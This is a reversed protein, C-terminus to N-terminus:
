FQFYIFPTRDLPWFIAFLTLLFVCAAAAAPIPLKALHQELDGIRMSIVHLSWFAAMLFLVFGVNAPGADFLGGRFDFMVFKELAVVMKSTNTVRFTIWTLLIGYQLAAWSLFPRARKGGSPSIPRLSGYLRQACLMLGHLCGWLVFNWAAGHWLGGLFMTIMLNRCTVLIGRRSGGLPIYLYDRLWTSLSIHWRRWFEAPSQAFYPRDFNLPINYGFIMALARAMDSYGSFDCYIQISFAITATWILASPWHTPDAFIQDVFPALNDAVVVKKGLGRVFLFVVARSLTLQVPRQLEPLFQKARLIPGAVLVPFFTIFLAFERLSRCAPIERRYVDITYSTTHFTYFSIGVPLIVGALAPSFDFGLERAFTVANVIFFDRYKFYALLGLNAVLSFILLGRRQRPRSEIELRRAVLYDIITTALLPLVFVPKWWMYFLYSVALLIFKRAGVHRVLALLALLVTLFIAFSPTHFLM